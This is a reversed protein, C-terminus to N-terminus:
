LQGQWFGLLTQKLVRSLGSVSRINCKTPEFIMCCEWQFESDLFWISCGWESLLIVVNVKTYLYTTTIPYSSWYHKLLEQLSTWHQLCTEVHVYSVFGFDQLLVLLTLLLFVLLSANVAIDYWPHDLAFFENKKTFASCYLNCVSVYLLEEKITNPLTDLVSLGHNKGTDYKTSSINHTLVSLVQMM